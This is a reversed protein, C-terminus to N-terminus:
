PPGAVAWGLGTPTLPAGFGAAPPIGPRLGTAALIGGALAVAAAAFYSARIGHWALIAAGLLPGVTFGVGMATTLLGFAVGRERPSVVDGLHAVAMAYTAIWCMGYLVRTPLLWYPNTTIAILAVAASWGVMGLSLVARRGVRDSAHGIPLAAVIQGVGFASGLVGILALSAGIGRAFVSFTPSLIGTSVDAMFVVLCSLVVDRRLTARWTM